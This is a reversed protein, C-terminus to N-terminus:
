FKVKVAPPLMVCVPAKVTVPPVKVNDEVTNFESIKNDCAFLKPATAGTNVPVSVLIRSTFIRLVFAAANSGLKVPKLLKRLKVTVNM